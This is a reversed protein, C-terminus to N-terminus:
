NGKRARKRAAGAAVAPAAAPAAAAAAQAAAAAEAPYMHKLPAFTLRHIPCAGHKHIAAMHQATGYGKHAEFNYQPWQAHYARMMRDRTVKAVLSAAAISFVKSDGGIIPRATHIPGLRGQLLGDVAPAVTTPPKRGPAPAPQAAAAGGELAVRSRKKGAAKGGAASASDCARAAGDYAGGDTAAAIRPPCHPGDVFVPHLAALPHLAPPASPLPPPSAVGAAGFDIADEAPLATAPAVPLRLRASAAGRAAATAREMALMSAAFINVADIDRASIVSVGFVLRPCALLAPFLAEREEESVAKSDRVGSPLAAASASAPLVICAAAVVPGALPGRGAEDVGCVLAAPALEWVRAEHTLPLSADPAPLAKPPPASPPQTTCRRVPQARGASAGALARLSRM